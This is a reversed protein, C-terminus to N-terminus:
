IPHLCLLIYMKKCSEPNLAWMLSNMYFLYIILNLSLTFTLVSHNPVFIFNCPLMLKRSNLEIQASLKNCYKQTIKRTTLLLKRMFHFSHLKIQKRKMGNRDTSVAGELYSKVSETGLTVSAMVCHKKLPVLINIVFSFCSCHQFNLSHAKWPVLVWLNSLLLSCFFAAVSIKIKNFYISNPYHKWHLFSKLWSHGGPFIHEERLIESYARFYRSGSM